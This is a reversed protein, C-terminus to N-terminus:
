SFRPHPAVRGAAIGARVMEADWRKERAGSFWAAAPRFGDHPLASLEYKLKEPKAMPRLKDAM